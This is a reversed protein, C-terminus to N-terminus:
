PRCVGLWTTGPERTPSSGDLRPGTVSFRTRYLDAYLGGAALLATHTGRETVRGAKLVLIQDARRITSLRHAIVLSTRGHLATKLARQVAAESGSDLHGTAEDLVVLPPAEVLLRALAIRQKEGGSLRFGRDGVVTDLHDPLAQVLDWIQARECAEILEQETAGPRAYLLNARISDHFLHADQTVVGVTDHLSDATVDRLDHGGIRVTGETPGYLRGLLSSLAVLSGLQLAGHVVLSGGEGYVVATVFSALMTLTIYLVQGCMARTVGTDRAKGARRGFELSEDAPHGFLKVTMAGAVNFRETMVSGMEANLRMGERTLRQLRRAVLRAPLLFLPVLALAVLSVLWSLYFLAALIMLVSVLNSIVGSLVSTLAQRAGAVDGDLRSVLSGTQARAFFAVPQRQVHDFVQTRLDYVVGSGIRSSTLRNVLGLAASLIGAGAVMAALVAVLMGNGTLIGRNVIEELLLPNVM